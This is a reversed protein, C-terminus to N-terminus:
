ISFIITEVKYMLGPGNATRPGFIFMNVGGPNTQVLGYSVGGGVSSGKNTVIVEWSM